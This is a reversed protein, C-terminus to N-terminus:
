EAGKNSVNAYGYREVIQAASGNAKHWAKHCKRCLVLLTDITQVDYRTHHVDIKKSSGCQECVCGRISLVRPVVFRRWFLTDVGTLAIHDDSDVM